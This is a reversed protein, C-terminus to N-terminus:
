AEDADLCAILQLTEDSTGVQIIQGLELITDGTVRNGDVFTGHTSHDKLVIDQGSLQITCHKGSVGTSQARIRIGPVDSAEERGIYLIQETIPYAM